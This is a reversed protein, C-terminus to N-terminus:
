ESETLQDLLEGIERHAGQSQTIVLFGPISEIVGTPPDGHHVIELAAVVSHVLAEAGGAFLQGLGAVSEESMAPLAASIVGELQLSDLSIAPTDKPWRVALREAIETTQGRWSWPRVTHMIVRVLLPEPTTESLHDIRYVRTEKASNARLRTTIVLSDDAILLDLDWARTPLPLGIAHLTASGAPSVADLFQRLAEEVSVRQLTVLIAPIPLQLLTEIRAQVIELETEVGMGSAGSPQLPVDQIGPAAPQEGQVPPVGPPPPEPSPASIPPSFGLTPPSLTTFEPLGEPAIATATRCSECSTVLPTAMAQYRVPGPAPTSLLIGSLPHNTDLIVQLARIDWRISLQHHQELHALLEALTVHDRVEDKWELPMALRKEMEARRHSVGRAGLETASVQSAGDVLMAMFLCLVIYGRWDMSHLGSM